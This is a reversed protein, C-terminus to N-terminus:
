GKYNHFCAEIRWGNPDIVFAGYYGAHYHPRPGPGGNCIGGHALCADYWAHVAEISAASFAAHVGRAQGISEVPSGESSIWFGPRITGNGYGAVKVEPLDLTVERRYGLAELTVDYFNLSSAYDKVAFSIHDIM